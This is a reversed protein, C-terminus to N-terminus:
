SAKIDSTVETLPIFECLAVSVLQYNITHDNPLICCLVPDGADLGQAGNTFLRQPDWILGSRQCIM